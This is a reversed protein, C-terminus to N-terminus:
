FSEWMIILMMVMTTMMRTLLAHTYWFTARSSGWLLSGDEGLTGRPYLWCFHVDDQGWKIIMMNDNSSWIKDYLSWWIIVFHDDYQWTITMTQDPDRVWKSKSTLRPVHRTMVEDYITIMMNECKSKWITMYSSREEPDGCHAVYVFSLSTCFM